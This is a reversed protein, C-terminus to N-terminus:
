LMCLTPGPFDSTCSLHSPRAVFKKRPALFICATVSRLGETPRSLLGLQSHHRARATSEFETLGFGFNRRGHSTGSRGKTRAAQQEWRGCAVSVRCSHRGRAGDHGDIGGLGDELLLRGEVVPVRRDERSSRRMRRRGFARGHESDASLASVCGGLQRSGAPPVRVYGVDGGRLRALEDADLADIPGAALDLVIVRHTAQWDGSRELATTAITVTRKPRTLLAKSQHPAAVRVSASGLTM